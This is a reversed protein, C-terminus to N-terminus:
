FKCRGYTYSFYIDNDRLASQTWFLESKSLRAISGDAQNLFELANFAALGPRPLFPERQSTRHVAGFYCQRRCLLWCAIGLAMESAPKQM